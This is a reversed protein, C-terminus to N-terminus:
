GLEEEILHALARAWATIQATDRGEVMVRVVPETGSARVLVRGEGALQAETEKILCAVPMNEALLSKRANSVKASVLVQPMVEMVKKLESLPRKERHIVSLLQLGSLIGDGTTNHALFIIHGSQEGGLVHGEELMKELVYRDGVATQCLTLGQKRCMLQLGMNSMVTAVLTNNKLLGRKHLDFGCVAMIEDGDVVAGSNDVALMRDGDGDFALGVDMGHASVYDRLSDIHTSGCGANINIGDPLHHLVHVEAGLSTFVEPAIRSTAGNACDLALKLGDLTLGPVTSLLFAIYDESAHACEQRVGVHVGEPRPLNATQHHYINEIEDELADPLKYGDGNFFKIGNDEMPNHSASIMVGADMGYKRVLHAVAPTPIVGAQYVVAGLSCLGATLASELMDGSRRTDRALLIQPAHPADKASHGAISAGTLVYAGARGLQLAMEPTLERNAVGRVGDTGFLRGM